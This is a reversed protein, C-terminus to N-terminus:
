VTLAPVAMAHPAQMAPPLHEQLEFANCWQRWNANAEDVIDLLVRTDLQLRSSTAAMEAVLAKREGPQALYLDAMCAALQLLRALHRTDRDAAMHPAEQCLVADSFTHGMRWSRLLAAGMSLHSYGYLASERRLLASAPAERSERLLRAYSRPRACALGLSGIDALLGQCFLEPGSAVPMESTLAQAACAMAFSHSWHRLYNFDACPGRRHQQLLDLALALQSTAFTGVHRLAAPLAADPGSLMRLAYDLAPTAAIRALLPAPDEDGCQSLQMLELTERTPTPVLGAAKLEAFDILDDM